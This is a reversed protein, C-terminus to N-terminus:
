VSRYWWWYSASVPFVFPSFSHQMEVSNLDLCYELRQPATLSPLAL